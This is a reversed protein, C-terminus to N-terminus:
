NVCGVANYPESLWKRHSILGKSRSSSLIAEPTPEWLVDTEVKNISMYAILQVELHIAMWM